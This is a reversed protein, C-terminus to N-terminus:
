AALHDHPAMVEPAVANLSTGPIGVREMNIELTKTQRAMIKRRCGPNAALRYQCALQLGIKL